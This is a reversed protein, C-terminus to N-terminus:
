PRPNPDIEVQIPPHLLLSDYYGVYVSVPGDWSNIQLDLRANLDLGGDDDCAWHGGPLRALLVTDVDGQTTISVRHGVEVELTLAPVPDFHGRCLGQGTLDLRIPQWPMLTYIQRNFSLAPIVVQRTTAANPEGLDAVREDEGLYVRPTPLIPASPSLPRQLTPQPTQPDLRVPQEDNALGPAPSDSVPPQTTRIVDQVALAPGPLLGTLLAVILCDRGRVHFMSM